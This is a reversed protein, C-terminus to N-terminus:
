KKRRLVMGAAGALSALMGFLGLLGVAPVPKAATPTPTPATSVNAYVTATTGAKQTGTVTCTTATKPCNMSLGTGYPAIGWAVTQGPKLAPITFTNGNKTVGAGAKLVAPTPTPTSTKKTFTVGITADATLKTLDFTCTKATLDADSGKPCASIDAGNNGSWASVYYDPSPTATVQNGSAVLTGNTPTDVLLKFTTPTPTPTSGITLEPLSSVVGTVATSSADTYEEYTVNSTIKGSTVSGLNFEINCAVGTPLPNSGGLDVGDVVISSGSFNCRFQLPSTSTAKSITVGTPLTMTFKLGSAKSNIAGDNTYMLAVKPTASDITTPNLTYSPAAYVFSTGALVSLTTILKKM